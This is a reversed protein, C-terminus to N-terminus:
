RNSGSPTSRMGPSALRGAPERGAEMRATKTSCGGRPRCAFAGRGTDDFWYVQAESVTAPKAFAMEVWEMKSCQRAAAAAVLRLLVLSDDSSRRIGRRRHHDAPQKGRGPGAASVTVTASTALTPIRRRARRPTSARWGCPWRRRTRSEGLHRLSHGHVATRGEARRGERRVVARVRTGHDGARWEASGRPVRAALANADPLVINRVKGNPNDPWEAAYVIPGRQLAVRDRDAEVSEHAVIRRVPMPLNSSSSTAASGRASM